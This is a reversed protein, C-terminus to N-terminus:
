PRNRMLPGSSSLLQKRKSASNDRQYRGFVLCRHTIFVGELIQNSDYDSRAEVGGSGVSSRVAATTSIWCCATLLGLRAALNGDDALVLQPMVEDVAQLVHRYQCRDHLDQPMAM